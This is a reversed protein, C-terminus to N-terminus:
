QQLEEKAERLPQLALQSIYEDDPKFECIYNTSYIRRNLAKTHAPRNTRDFGKADLKGEDLGLVKSLPTASCIIGSNWLYIDREGEDPTTESDEDMKQASLNKLNAMQLRKRLLDRESELQEIMKKM